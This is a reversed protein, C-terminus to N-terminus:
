SLISLDSLELEANRRGQWTSITPVFALDVRAGVEVPREGMGFGIANRAIHEDDEITLKWM